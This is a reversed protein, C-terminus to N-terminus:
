FSMSCYFQKVSICGLGIRAKGVLLNECNKLGLQFQIRKLANFTIMTEEVLMATVHRVGYGVSNQVMMASIGFSLNAKDNLKIRYAYSLAANFQKLIDTQDLNMKFGLGMNDKLAGHIGLFTTKPAGDIGQWQIRRSATGEIRNNIGAESPNLLYENFNYFNSLPTQQAMAVSSVLVGAIVTILRKM